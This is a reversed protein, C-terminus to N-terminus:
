FLSSSLIAVSLLVTQLLRQRTGLRCDYKLTSLAAVDADPSAGAAVKFDTTLVRLAMEPQEFIRHLGLSLRWAVM